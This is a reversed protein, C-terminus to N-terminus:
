KHVYVIYTFAYVLRHTHTLHVNEVSSSFNIWKFLSYVRISISSRNCIDSYYGSLKVADM